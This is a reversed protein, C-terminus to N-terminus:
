QDRPARGEARALRADIEDLLRRVEATLDEDSMAALREDGMEAAIQARLEEASVGTVEDAALLGIQVLAVVPDAGYARAIRVAMDPKLGTLSALQTALTSQRVGARGAIASVTAGGSVEQMWRQTSM